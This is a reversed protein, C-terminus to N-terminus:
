ALKSIRRLLWELSLVGCILVMLWGMLRQEFNRDRTGPLYDIQDQPAVIKTLEPVDEEGAEGKKGTRAQDIGVYYEGDTKTALDEMLQDNRTPNESELQPVRTRVTRTLLEDLGTGPVQLQIEYDGELLTTFQGTFMGERAGQAAKRLMLQKNAGDPRILSAQGEDMKLPRHQADQLIAQIAIHDGILCREKDVLLSGHSSDQLLRGQSAWRILKTYYSQFYAVDVERIRWMEGSAQYFVRGAGYLHGALYIPAEDDIKTDPDSFHAYVKAGPKPDKAKYYGFVGDFSAWAQESGISDDELWLFEASEGERTFNLPWPSEGGFRETTLAVGGQNYFVVPYLAKLTDARSDRGRRFRTWERTFVPGAVVIMGGSKEAIWRELLKIQVENLKMWDPDFAILCDYEFLEDALEPFEFLLEDSEQSIGPEGTQLLVDLTVDKDRYLFNRLFRYERTPGGAMLLVKTRRDIIEVTASKQNDKKNSDAKTNTIVVRTTYIRKGEEEDTKIEFTHPLLVGDGKLAFEEEDEVVEASKDTNNAPTSILQLRASNGKLGYAQVFGTIHFKDGPYVRPPAEIDVVRVNKRETINGLGVVFMKINADNADNIAQKVDVGKNNGGDSLLVIGALPGGREQRVVYRIVDGIRTETGRPLLQQTWNVSTVEEVPTEDEEDEQPPEAERLGVMVLLKVDPSRLMGVGFVILAAIMTVMSVLVSWANKEAPNRTPGSFLYIVFSILAIGSLVGAIIATTRARDVSDSLEESIEGTNVAVTAKLKGYAAVQVPKTGEDFRYVVIEHDKRLKELMEGQTFEEVVEDIRSRGKLGAGIADTISMSQSTDVLVAVRSDKTLTQQSMRELSLFFFAIAAFAVVRLLMLTASLGRSLEVSDRMYMYVVYAALLLCCLAFIGWKWPEDFARAFQHYTTTAQAFTTALANM